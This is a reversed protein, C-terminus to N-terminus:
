PLAQPGAGRLRAVDRSPPLGHLRSYERSFQSASEYGVRHAATGADIQEALMLRQAERLRLQKQYQLPTMATVAKFHHHLSSASMNVSHALAEIRLPAAYHHKIWAIARGIQHSPGAGLSLQRLRPGVEGCLLRYFLEREAMPGLVPLHEPTDLLRVLRLLPELLDATTHGITVGRVPATELAAPMPTAQILDSVRQADIIVVVALYPEHPSACTIRGQVPMDYSSMFFHTADYEYVEDALEVRKAGQTAVTISPPAVGCALASPGSFRLLSLGPYASPHLGDEAVHRSILAALERRLAVQAPTAHPAGGPAACATSPRPSQILM